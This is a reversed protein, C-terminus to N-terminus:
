ASNAAPDFVDLFYGLKQELFSKIEQTTLGCDIYAINKEKFFSLPLDARAQDLLFAFAMSKIKTFQHLKTLFPWADADILAKVIKLTGL